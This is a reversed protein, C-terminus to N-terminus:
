GRAGTVFYLWVIRVWLSATRKVPAPAVLALALISLALLSVVYTKVTPHM